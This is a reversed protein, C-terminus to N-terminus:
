HNFVFEVSNILSWVVDEVAERKKESGSLYDVTLKREDDTPKRSLLSLYIEDIIEDGSEKEALVKFWENGDETLKRQLGKSNMLHLAQVVSSDPARECPPAASPDPRGFADLFENGFKHNWQSTARSKKALGDFTEPSGTLDSLADLLVEAPLRRRYSRSFNRTDTLNHETPLSSQQYLRSSLIRRLLKKQDFGNNAFDTALWDLLPENTPPNSERFDDVPHVIGRGFMEGWVRNVIAKAFFANEKSTIWDTLVIRPDTNDDIEPFEPGDPAKPKMVAETVPHKVEGGAQFWWYEPEGSIPTSIGQGKRKMAGFFAAMAYYDDQGWKESPHHHCRACNMRIGLFLQSVFESMDAPERKDRFIAVPGYDHTSGQATLLEKVFEDWTTNTRFKQRIWDDLLYVPKTGVRQTNPRLLDGWKTAWYDGYAIRNEDSLLEDILKIRKDPAKDALFSEVRKATPLKGIADLTARRIFENDTCPEPPMLGLKKFREYAYHDIENNTKLGAYVADPLVTDPPITVRTNSVKDLYRVIIVGAGPVSGATIKGEHDVQAFAAENSQFEALHTVDRTTENSYHATIKIERSTGKKYEAEPPSVTIKDLTPEDPISLPAGESIWKALTKYFESGVEFRKEGEHPITNTAKLLLLSNEPAAPFIRRGRADFVIEHYDSDPDFSFISLGFGNQGGSKSHCSGASCGARTLIPLVDNKFSVTPNDASQLSSGLCIVFLIISHNIKM